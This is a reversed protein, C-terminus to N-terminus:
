KTVLAGGVFGIVFWTSWKRYWVDNIGILEEQERILANKIGIKERLLSQLSSDQASKERLSFIMSDAIVLEDKDAKADVLAKVLTEFQTRTYAFHLEGDHSIIKPKLQDQALIVSCLLLM